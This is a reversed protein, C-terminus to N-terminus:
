KIGVMQKLRKLQKKRLYKIMEKDELSPRNRITAELYGMLMLIGRLLIPKNKFENICKLIAFLPHYGLYHLREGALLEKGITKKQKFGIPKYHKLVLDQYSKTEWGLMQAKLEDITDWGLVVPLGDIDDFCQRKYMKAAGRVHDDPMKDMVLKNGKVNYTTGSAMGLRPNKEFEKILLEFYEPEFSLDGDLKVVFDFDKIQTKNLGNNFALVVGPGPRHGNLPRDVRKIWQFRSTYNNIIEPTKDTSGDNVIVWEVPLITQSIVSHITKEIYDEENRVPSIIIYKNNDM